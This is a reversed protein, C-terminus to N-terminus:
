SPKRVGVELVMIVIETTLFPAPGVTQVVACSRRAQEVPRSHEQPRAMRYDPEVGWRMRDRRATGLFPALHVSQAAHDLTTCQRRVIIAKSVPKAIMADFELIKFLAQPRSQLFEIVGLSLVDVNM